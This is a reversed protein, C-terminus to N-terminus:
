IRKLIEKIKEKVEHEPYAGVIRGVEKGDSFLVLCPIGLILNKEAIDKNKEIDIKAFKLKGKFEPDNELKEFIPKLMHCPGCWDAFFDVIVPLRSKLVEQSYTEKNIEAVM